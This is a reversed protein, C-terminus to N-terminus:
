VGKKQRELERRAIKLQEALFDSRNFPIANVEIDERPKLKGVHHACGMVFGDELNVHAIKLGKYYQTYAKYGFAEPQHLGKLYKLKGNSETVVTWKGYDEINM